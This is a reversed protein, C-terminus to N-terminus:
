PVTVTLLLVKELLLAQSEPPPIYLVREARHYEPIRDDGVARPSPVAVAGDGIAAVEAIGIRSTRAYCCGRKPGKCFLPPRVWM